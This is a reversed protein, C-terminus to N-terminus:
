DLSPSTVTSRPDFPARHLGTDVAMLPSNNVWVDDIVLTRGSNADNAAVLLYYTGDEPAEGDWGLSQPGVGSLARSKQSAIVAGNADLLLAHPTLALDNLELCANDCLSSVNLRYREGQKLQLAFVRYDSLSRGLALRPQESGNGRLAPLLAPNVPLPIAAADHVAALTSTPLASHDAQQTGQQPGACAGLLLCAGLTFLKHV